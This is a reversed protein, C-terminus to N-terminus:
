FLVNFVVNLGYVPDGPSKVYSGAVPVPNGVVVGGVVVVFIVSLLSSKDVGASSM